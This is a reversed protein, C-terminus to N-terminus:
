VTINLHHLDDIQLTKRNLIINRYKLCSFTVRIRGGPVFQISRVKSFDLM